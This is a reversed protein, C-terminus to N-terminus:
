AAAKGYDVFDVGDVTLVASPRVARVEDAMLGVRERDSGLYRYRYITLGNPLKGAERIHTKMRRDSLGVAASGITGLLGYLGQSQAAANQQDMASSKYIYDAINTNAVTPSPTSGQQVTQNVPTSTGMLTAYDNLSVNRETLAANNATTYADLFMKNYADSKQQSFQRMANEYQPSGARVGQNILQSELAARQNEWQPDLMTQQIDSIEKGRAATLDFPDGSITANVNNLATNTTDGLNARLDRQQALLAQEEPALTSVM